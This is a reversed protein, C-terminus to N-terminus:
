EPLLLGFTVKGPEDDDVVRNQGQIGVLHQEIRQCLREPNQAPHRATPDDIGHLGRDVADARALHALDIGPASQPV